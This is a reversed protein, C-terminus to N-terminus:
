SSHRRGGSSGSSSSSGSGVREHKMNNQKVDFTTCDSFALCTLCPGGFGPSCRSSSLVLMCLHLPSPCSLSYIKTRQLYSRLVVQGSCADAEMAVRLGEHLVLGFVMSSVAASVRWCPLRSFVRFTLCGFVVGFWAFPMPFVVITCFM